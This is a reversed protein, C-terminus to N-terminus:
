LVKESGQYCEYVLVIRLDSVNTGTPGTHILDDLADFFDFSANNALSKEPSLSLAEARPLTTEDAIAGCADTAGDIGDTDVSVVTMGARYEQLFGLVFEQNRGGKGKGRVTVTTEGGSIIAAPPKGPNSSSLCECGIGAHLLGAERSEGKLHSGLIIPSYGTDRAKESAAKLAIINSGIVTNFVRGFVPNDRKLTDPVKGKIGDQIHRIIREPAKELLDYRELVERADNFTTSDAATPGSAIFEPDDGVVDSVILSLVEANNCFRLMQGGKIGSIHKRVSNIEKIDAGSKLLLDTMKIKDELLIGDAPYPLLASGGGSILFIIFDGAGAQALMDTMDRVGRIGDLTPLPHGARNIKIIHTTAKSEYRDNVMGATIRSGIMKELEAAMTGAAKGGGAVYIHRYKSLDYRRGAVDLMDGNVRVANRIVNEPLVANIGAEVISLAHARRERGRILADRNRIDM